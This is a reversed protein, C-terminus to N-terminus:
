TKCRILGPTNNLWYQFDRVSWHWAFPHAYHQNYARRSKQIHQLMLARDNWHGRLLYRASFADLV